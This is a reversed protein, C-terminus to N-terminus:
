KGDRKKRLKVIEEKLLKITNKNYDLYKEAQDFFLDVNDNSPLPPAPNINKLVYPQYFNRTLSCVSIEVKNSSNLNGYVIWFGQSEIFRYSCDNQSIGELIDKYYNGKLIENVKFSYTNSSDGLSVLQGIFIINNEEYSAKQAQVLTTYQECDCQSKQTLLSLLFILILNM